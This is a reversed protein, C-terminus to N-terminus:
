LYNKSMALLALVLVSAWLAVPVALCAVVALVYRGRETTLLIAILAMTPYIM